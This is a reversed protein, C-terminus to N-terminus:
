YDTINVFGLVPTSWEVTSGALYPSATPYAGNQHFTGSQNTFPGGYVGITLTTLDVTPDILFRDCTCDANLRWGICGSTANCTNCCHMPGFTIHTAISAAVPASDHKIAFPAVYSKEDWVAKCRGPINGAWADQGKSGPGWCIPKDRAQLSSGLPGATVTSTLTALALTAIQILSSM